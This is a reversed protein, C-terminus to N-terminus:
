LSALKPIKEASERVCKHRTVFLYQLHPQALAALDFRSFVGPYFGREWIMPGLFGCVLLIM